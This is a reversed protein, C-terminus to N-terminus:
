FNIILFFLTLPFIVEEVAPPKYLKQELAKSNWEIGSEHAIDQLLQLKKDKSHPLLKLKAVFQFM